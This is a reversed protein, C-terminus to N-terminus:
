FHYLNRAPDYKLKQEATGGNFVTMFFAHVKNNQLAKGEFYAHSSGIHPQDTFNVYTAMKAELRKLFHGLRAKQHEGMKLRSAKLASDNENITIYLRNRYPIRDVWQAHAENNTDAAVMIINDFLLKDISYVSSTMLHKFLYNGMSHLMLNVTFKCRQAMHHSFFEDWAAADNKHKSDALKSIKEVYDAHAHELLQAMRELLRSLAGVSALADRKDSKYSALGYASGGGNAPWSFVLVEVNFDIELQAARNLVAAVDNNYGHVYLLLNRGSATVGAAPVLKALLKAAVYDSAYVVNDASSSSIAQAAAQQPPIIDPLVSIHWTGNIKNADALRLTNPGPAPTSGFVNEVDTQAEHVIRNTIIFM